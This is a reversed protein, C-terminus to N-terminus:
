RAYKFEFTVSAVYRGYGSNPVTSKVSNWIFDPRITVWQAASYSVSPSFTFLTITEGTNLQNLSISTKLDTSLKHSIKRKWKVSVTNRIVDTAGDIPSTGTSRDILLHYKSFSKNKWDISLNLIVGAFIKEGTNTNTKSKWGFNANSFIKGSSRWGIGTMYKMAVNNFRSEDLNLFEDEGRSIILLINTKGSLKFSNKSTLSFSDVDRVKSSELEFRKKQGEFTFMYSNNRSFDNYKFSVGASNNAWLDPASLDQSKIGVEGSIDVTTKYGYNLTMEYKKKSNTIFSTDFSQILYDQSENSVHRGYNVLYKFNLLMDKYFIDSAIEPSISVILDSAKNDKTRYVNNDYAYSTMVMANFAMATSTVSLGLMFLLTLYFRLQLVGM